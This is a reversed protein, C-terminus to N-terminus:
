AADRLHRVVAAALADPTELFPFHGCGPLVVLRGAPLADAVRRADDPRGVRDAEGVVVLAPQRARRALDAVRTRLAWHVSRALTLLPAAIFRDTAEEALARAAPDARMREPHAAAVAFAQLVSERDRRGRWLGAVALWPGVVPLAALRRVRGAVVLPAPDLLVTTTVLDPFRAALLLSPFVGMSHSVVAVPAVARVVHELARAQDGPTHRFRRPAPSEGFGPLDVAVVRFGAAVLAAPLPGWGEKFGGWGHVLLVAPGAGTELIALGM